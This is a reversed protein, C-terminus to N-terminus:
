LSDFLKQENGLIGGVKTHIAPGFSATGSSLDGGGTSFAQDFKEFGEGGDLAVEPDAEEVGVRSVPRIFEDGGNCAKRFHSAVDVHGKLM